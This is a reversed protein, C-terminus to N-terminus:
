IGFRGLIYAVAEQPKDYGAAIARRAAESRTIRGNREPESKPKSAERAM